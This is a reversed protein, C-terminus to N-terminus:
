ESLGRLSIRSSISSARSQDCSLSSFMATMDSRMLLKFSSIYNHVSVVIRIVDATEIPLGCEVAAGTSRTETLSLAHSLRSVREVVTLNVGNVCDEALAIQTTEVVREANKLLLNANRGRGVLLSVLIETVADVQLTLAQKGLM